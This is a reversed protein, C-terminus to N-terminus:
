KLVPFFDKKEAWSEDVGCLEFDVHLPVNIWKWAAPLDKTTVQVITRCVEDLEEPHVDLIIADHIQGILRTQWSREQMIKDMQIYSWVLCHFAAGQVPYNIADNKGMIGSCRFGTHMDIYGYKQYLKWWREKWKAYDPFRTEWFHEEIKKIHDTFKTLSKIGKKRLHAGLTEEGPLKIGDTDKWTGAPLEGWKCALGEACNGYYDGYFQPFVFGNKAAQRLRNHEPISRDFGEIMFIQAAMDAHMDSAPDKIYKIMNPDKHYTAAIAVELGSYDVEMLQHGPRPYLARRTIEMAEKDRKPINQFNPRDSSSRFTRVLHLNFSPHLYGKVTERKFGKLYTDRNKKLRRIEILKELEPIKLSLLAEEDTSGQGTTSLKVPSLKKVKYLFAGLQANSYINPRNKVTHEWHRYFKTNFFKKEMHDIRRTLHQIKTELYEEDVRIGQRESRAFALTGDHLLKYAELTKPNIKM